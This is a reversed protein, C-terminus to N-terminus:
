RPRSMMNYFRNLEMLYRQMEQFNQFGSPRSPPVLAMLELDPDLPASFTVSFTVTLLLGLVVIQRTVTQIRCRSM